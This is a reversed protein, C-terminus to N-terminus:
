QPQGPEPKPGYRYVTTDRVHFGVKEYLRHAAARSRHSTLDIVRAGRQTARNVTTGVLAEGIGLGRFSSDVVVDEIRARVGTPTCVMVLTLTGIIAGDARNQVILVTNAPSDIVATLAQGSLPPASSSLQPLLRAFADVLEATATDATLREVSIVAPRGIGMDFIGTTDFM